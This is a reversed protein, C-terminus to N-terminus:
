VRHPSCEGRRSAKRRGRLRGREEPRSSEYSPPENCPRWVTHSRAHSGHHSYRLEARRRTENFPELQGCAYQHHAVQGENGGRREDRLAQGQCGLELTVISWPVRTPADNMSAESTLSITRRWSMTKSAQRSAPTSRRCVVRPWSGASLAVNLLDAGAIGGRHPVEEKRREVSGLM